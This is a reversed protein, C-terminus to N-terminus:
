RYSNQALHKTYDIVEKEKSKEVLVGVSAELANWFDDTDDKATTAEVEAAEERQQKEVLSKMVLVPKGEEATPVGKAMLRNQPLNRADFGALAATAALLQNVTPDVPRLPLLEADSAFLHRTSEQEPLLNMAGGATGERLRRNMISRNESHHYPNVCFPTNCWKVLRTSAPLYRCLIFLIRPVSNTGVKRALPSTPSLLPSPLNANPWIFCDNKVTCNNILDDANSFKATRGM